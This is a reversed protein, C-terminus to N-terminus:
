RARRSVSVPPRPATGTSTSSPRTASIPQRPWLQPMSGHRERGTRRRDRPPNLDATHDLSHPEARVYEPEGAGVREAAPNPVASVANADVDLAALAGDLSEHAFEGRMRRGRRRNGFEFDAGGAAVPEGRELDAVAFRLAPRGGADRGVQRDAGITQVFQ